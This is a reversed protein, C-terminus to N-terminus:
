RRLGFQTFYVLYFSCTRKVRVSFLPNAGDNSFISFDFPRLNNSNNYHNIKKVRDIWLSSLPFADLKGFLTCAPRILMAHRKFKVQNYSKNWSTLRWLCSRRQSKTWSTERARPQKTIPFSQKPNSSITFIRKFFKIININIASFVWNYRRM